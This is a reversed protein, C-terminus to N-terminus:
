RQQCRRVAKKWGDLLPKRQAETMQPFYRQGANPSIIGMGAYLGTTLGAMYGAGLASLESAGACQVPCGLLDAQFQMLLANRTPGGDVKLESLQSGTDHEMASIVDADQYALSELAARVIHARTTSRNMGCILARADSDGHPAGLGSFAPVLYVGQTDPVSASIAETEAAAHILGAEDQLWCLTDGSCTINGELVYCIEDQFSFGVSTALGHESLAPKRGINMMVSSGTGYTAKAMGVKHCGQGFLAAHSDGMVGTIPIGAPIVCGGETVGFSADSPVIQPLCSMPIGFLACLEESWALTDLQMLQTRSANSVDTQFIKGETLRYVLYSDVTGICVDGSQAGAQWAPNAQLVSAAKAAPFYPSLPLGTQRRVMDAHASLSQCLAEGRVDQWVVAKGLPRGTKREWLVTTERQNSIALAAVTPAGQSVEAIGEQVNQWIEEADHEVHGPQPYFQQHAKSFRRIIEGKEDLLFVKSASTSQDIAIIHRGNM